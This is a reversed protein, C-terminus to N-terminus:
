PAAFSAAARRLLARAPVRPHATARGAAATERSLRFREVIRRMEMASTSLQECALASQRAGNASEAVLKTVREMSGNVEETTASQQTTAAAIQAITEGVQGAQEIIRALSEGARKTAAVGQEVRDNGSHMKRVATGTEEQIGRIMEAIEKTAKSTREALKRVEDAVVAFGRGLDGARAAEIAANLALLNTQDAIDDIVNVIRGIQDSRGGLGEVNQATDRVFDALETMSALTQGVITGGDRATKSAESAMAAASQSNDSVNRVTASMEQMAVAIQRFQDKQTEAGNATEQATASIEESATAVQEASSAVSQLTSVLSRQMQNIAVTLSSVEDNSGTWLEQGLLDGEAISEARQVVAKLPGVIGRTIRWCALGGLLIALGTSLALMWLILRGSKDLAMNETDTSENVKAILEKSFDRVQNAAPIAEATLLHLAQPSPGSRGVSMKTIENTTSTLRTLEESIAAIRKEYDMGTFSASFKRLAALDDSTRQKSQAIQKLNAEVSSPDSRVYMSGYLGNVMRQDAIRIDDIAEIAPIRIHAINLQRARLDAVKSYIIAANAMVLVFVIALAAALKKGITM